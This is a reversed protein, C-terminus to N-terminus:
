PSEEVCPFEELAPPFFCVTRLTHPGLGRWTWIQGTKQGSVVPQKHVTSVPFEKPPLPKGRVVSIRVLGGARGRRAVVGEDRRQLFTQVLYFVAGRGLLGFGLRGPVPRARGDGAPGSSRRFVPM